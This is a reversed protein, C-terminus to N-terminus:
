LSWCSSTKCLSIWSTQGPFVQTQVSHGFQGVLVVQVNCQRCFALVDSLCSLLLSLNASIIHTFTPHFYSFNM